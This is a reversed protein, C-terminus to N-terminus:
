GQAIDTFSTLAEVNSIDAFFIERTGSAANHSISCMDPCHFKAMLKPTYDSAIGLLWAEM